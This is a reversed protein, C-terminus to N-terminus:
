SSQVVKLNFIGQYSLRHAWYQFILIDLIPRCLEWHIVQIVLLSTEPTSSTSAFLLFLGKFGLTRELIFVECTIIKSYLEMIVLNPSLQELEYVFGELEKWSTSVIAGKDLSLSIWIESSVNISIKKHKYSM